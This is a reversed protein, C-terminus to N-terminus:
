IPSEPPETGTPTETGSGEDSWRVLQGCTPCTLEVPDGPMCGGLSADGRDASAMLDPTPLGYVVRPPRFRHGHQCTVTTVLGHGGESHSRNAASTTAM